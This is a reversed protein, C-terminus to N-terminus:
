NLKKGSADFMWDKHKVEAEYWVSGDSKEIRAAEKVKKGKLAAAVPAPLDAVPIETETELWLGDPSFTVSLEKGTDPLKFEAEWDGNKEKSWDVAKAGPFKQSFAAQVAAPPNAAFATAGLFLAILGLVIKKM